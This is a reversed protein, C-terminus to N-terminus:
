KNTLPKRKLYRTFKHRRTSLLILLIAWYILPETLNSKVSWIFHLAILGGAVYVWNHIKQWKRGMKRQINKTSTFTLTTLILLALFGVTIYPRKIIESILLSWELQLEFLIYSTLHCAAYFFAYLGLLRRIRIFLPQKSKKILPSICLSLLLLNFAGIGTFHLIAEVPDAGLEDNIAQYYTILVPLLSAFHIIVKAWTIHLPKILPM